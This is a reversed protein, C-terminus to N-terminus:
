HGQGLIVVAESQWEGHLMYCVRVRDGASRSALEAVLETPSKVPKGDVANIVDGLHLGAM